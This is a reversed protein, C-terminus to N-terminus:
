LLRVLPSISVGSRNILVLDNPRILRDSFHLFLVLHTYQFSKYAFFLCIHCSCILLLHVTFLQDPFKRRLISLGTSNGLMRQDKLNSMLRDSIAAPLTCTSGTSFLSWRGHRSCHSAWGISFTIPTRFFNGQGKHLCVKDSWHQGYAIQSWFQASLIFLCLIARTEAAM